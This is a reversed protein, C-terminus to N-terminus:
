GGKLIADAEKRYDRKANPGPRASRMQEVTPVQSAAGGAKIEAAQIINKLREQKDAIAKPKDGVQPFYSRRYGELQERTYAAGTGLTLAADLIDLQAAEVQQREEGTALSNAAMEQGVARLGSAVLGPKAASPKALLADELQMQSSRLRQLLAGATREGETTKQGATGKDLAIRERARADAQGAIQLQVDRGAKADAAARERALRQAESETVNASQVDDVVGTILNIRQTAVTGGRNQQTFSPLQDKASLASQYAVTALTRIGEPSPDAMVRAMAQEAQTQDWIGNSVLNQIAANASEVSPNDKVFGMAQGAIDLKKSAIDFRKADMEVGTKKVDARGKLYDQSEKLFGGRMLANARADDDSYEGGLLQALRNERELGRQYESQKLARDESQQRMQLARDEGQQQMQQIQLTKALLNMPDQPQQVGRGALSYIDTSAPM